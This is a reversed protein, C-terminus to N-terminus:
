REMARRSRAAAEAEDEKVEVEDVVRVAVVCAVSNVLLRRAGSLTTRTWALTNQQRRERMFPSFLIAVRELLVKAM